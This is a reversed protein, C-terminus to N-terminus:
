LAEVELARIDATAHVLAQVAVAIATLLVDVVILTELARHM